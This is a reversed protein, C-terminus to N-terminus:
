HSAADKALEHMSFMVGQPDLMQAIRSGGPVGMPGNLLKGGRAKAREVRADLGDVEVYYLWAPAMPMEKTRTFMGGLQKGGVGFLLYLGLPGLDHESLWQWGFLRSYFRFAADHDSTLLESWTFEGPKTGDHLDMSDFPEYAYISAGQPDGIVAFRAGLKPLDTPQVFVRGGLDRAQAATADVDAVEVYSTWHPPVGKKRAEEPLKMTGALPGQSSIWMTYGSEWEQTTWGIVDTYFALAAPPDNTLLEYWV